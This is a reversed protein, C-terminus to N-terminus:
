SLWLNRWKWYVRFKTGHNCRGTVWLRDRIVETWDTLWVYMKMDIKNKLKWELARREFLGKGKSEGCLRKHLYEGYM